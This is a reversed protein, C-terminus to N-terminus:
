RSVNYDIINMVILRPLLIGMNVCTFAIDFKMTPPAVWIDSEVQGGKIAEPEM